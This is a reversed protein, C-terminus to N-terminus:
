YSTGSIWGNVGKWKVMYMTCRGKEAGDASNIKLLELAADRERGLWLRVALPDRGANSARRFRARSLGMEWVRGLM